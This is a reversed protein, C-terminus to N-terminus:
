PKTRMMCRRCKVLQVIRLDATQMKGKDDIQVV